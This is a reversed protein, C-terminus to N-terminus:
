SAVHSFAQDFRSWCEALDDKPTYTVVNWRAGHLLDLVDDRTGHAVFAMIARSASLTSVWHRAREVDLRGLVVFTTREAVAAGEHDHEEPTLVALDAMADELTDQGDAVFRDVAHGNSQVTVVYGARVLHSSISAVAVISWEFSPSYEWADSRDRATGQSSPEADLWVAARPTVQQEEQRVMLEARHATAKWHM